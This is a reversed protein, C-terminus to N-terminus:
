APTYSSYKEYLQENCDGDLEKMINYLQILVSFGCFKYIYLRNQLFYKKM